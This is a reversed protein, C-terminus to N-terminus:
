YTAYEVVLSTTDRTKTETESGNWGNTQNLSKRCMKQQLNWKFHIFNREVNMWPLKKEKKLWFCFDGIESWTSGYSMKNQLGKPVLSLMSDERCAEWVQVSVQESLHERTWTWYIRRNWRWSRHTTTFNLCLCWHCGSRRQLLDVTFLLTPHHLVRRAASRFRERHSVVVDDCVDGRKLRRLAEDDGRGSVADDFDPLSSSRLCRALTVCVCTSYTMHLVLTDSSAHKKEKGGWVFM